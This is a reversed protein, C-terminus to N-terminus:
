SPTRDAAFGDVRRAGFTPSVMEACPEGVYSLQCLVPKTFRLNGTRNRGDARQRDAPAAHSACQIGRVPDRSGVNGRVAVDQLASVHMLDGESAAMKRPAIFM